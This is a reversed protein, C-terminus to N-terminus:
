QNSLTHKQELKRLASGLHYTPSINSYFGGLEVEIADPFGKYGKEVIDKHVQKHILWSGDKSCKFYEAENGSPNITALPKCKAPFYTDVISVRDEGRGKFSLLSVWEPDWTSDDVYLLYHKYNDKIIKVWGNRTNEYAFDMLDKDIWGSDYELNEFMSDMLNDALINHETNIMLAKVMFFLLFVAYLILSIKFIKKLIPIVMDM